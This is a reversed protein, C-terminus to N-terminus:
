VLAFLNISKSRPPSILDILQALIFISHVTKENKGEYMEKAHGYLLQLKTLKYISGVLQSVSKLTM